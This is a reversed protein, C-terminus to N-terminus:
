ILQKKIAKKVFIESDKIDLYVDDGSSIKDNIIYETIINEIKDSILRKLPRAGYKKTEPSRSIFAAVEPAYSLNINIKKARLVLKDLFLVAIRRLSEESLPEFVIIGDMRNLLEPKFHKRLKSDVEKCFSNSESTDQSFGLSVKQTVTNAGVNSTLIILTNKMSTKRGQSDRFVGEDTIQLLINLVDPHAKEIEDFLVVSYPKKKIMDSLMGSEKFGVYGPPSGILKSVSHQEMYESMDLRIMNEESDFVTHAVAKALETKGVGTPGAFLFSGIPKNEDKLGVRCRRISESIKEVARDQGIVRKKLESEINMLRLSEQKNISSSPIGTWSSIVASIDETTVDTSYSINKSDSVCIDLESMSKKLLETIENKRNTNGKRHTSRIVAHSCAEDIVDIAKDPLFRDPIYRESLYIAQEIIKDSINVSHFKEYSPKIGSLIRVLQEHDPEDVTVPQFRRELASDAEIFKRYESYTTAGIIRISGRALEPKLINAADIAGEAAGAGVITHIEDIFLIIDKNKEVEDICKKIREEFDGRYKAGALMSTIDLSLIFKNKLSDPVNGKIIRQALGEIIATKGVGAEGVLCPNNKTKRSLIQIIRETEQERGIVPDFGNKSATETFNKSYRSLGPYLKEDLKINSMDSIDSFSDSCDAKIRRIDSNLTKLLEYGGSNKNKVISLLIYETGTLSAGARSSEKSAERFIDDLRPTFDTESLTYPIGNGIYKKLYASVKDTTVNNNELIAAAINGGEALFGYIMHESGVFTHGLEGAYKVAYELSAIAKRTFENKNLM